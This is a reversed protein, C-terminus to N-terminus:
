DQLQREERLDRLVAAVTEDLPGDGAIVDGPEDEGLRELTALQSDLLSPPMYHGKRQALREVLVERAVDVHAFWVSPHGERLLDRYSRKLASCTIVLSTGAAEHEGVVEAIRRLWPWRDEDDLPTGAAMKAVNAEPHLDDGEIFEWGLQRTLERAASTKGSGSVGMVVISTTAPISPASDM